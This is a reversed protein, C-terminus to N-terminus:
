LIAILCAPLDLIMRTYAEFVSICCLQQMLSSQQLCYNERFSCKDCHFDDLPINGCRLSHYAHCNLFM